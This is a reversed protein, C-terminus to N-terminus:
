KILKNEKLFKYMREMNPLFNPNSVPWDCSHDADKVPILECINGADQMMKAFKERAKNLLETDQSYKINSFACTADVIM